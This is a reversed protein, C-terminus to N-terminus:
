SFINQARIESKLCIFTFVLRRLWVCSVEHFNLCGVWYSQATCDCRWPNDALPYQEPPPLHKERYVNRFWNENPTTLKNSSLRLSSLHRFCSNCLLTRDAICQSLDTGFCLLNQPLLLYFCM